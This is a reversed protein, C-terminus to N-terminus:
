ESICRKGEVIRDGNNTILFYLCNGEIKKKEVLFGSENLESLFEPFNPNTEDYFFRYTCDDIRNIIYYSTDTSIGKYGYDLPIKPDFTIQSSDTLITKWEVGPFATTSSIFEGEIFDECTLQKKCSFLITLSFVLTILKKM